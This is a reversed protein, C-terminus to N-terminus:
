DAKLKREEISNWILERVEEYAAKKEESISAYKIESRLHNLIDLILYKWGSGEQASRFDEEEEPLDFTLMGKPM